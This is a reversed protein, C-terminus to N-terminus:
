LPRQVWMLPNLTDEDLGGSGLGLLLRVSVLAKPAGPRM